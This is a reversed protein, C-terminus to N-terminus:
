DVRQFTLKLIDSTAISFASVGDTTGSTVLAVSLSVKVEASTPVPNSANTYDAAALKCNNNTYTVNISSTIKDTKAVTTQVPFHSYNYVTFTFVISPPVASSLENFYLVETMKWTQNNTITQKSFTQTNATKGDAKVAGSVSGAVQISCDYANFDVYTNDGGVSFIVGTAALVGFTLTAVCVFMLCISTVLRGIRSM